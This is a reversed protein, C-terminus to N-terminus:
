HNWTNNLMENQQRETDFKELKSIQRRLKVLEKKTKNIDAM